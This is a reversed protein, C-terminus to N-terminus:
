YVNVFEVNKLFSKANDKTVLVGNVTVNEFMVQTSDGSKDYVLYQGDALTIDCDAFYVTNNKNLVVADDSVEATVNVIFITAITKNAVLINEATIKQNEIALSNSLGYNEGTATNDDLTYAPGAVIEPETVEPETVEPETPAETEGEYKANADYQNDYSDFEYALQAAQVTISIGEIALGQYDNGAEEDMTGEIVLAASEGPLLEGEFAALDVEEEDITITFDIVELLKADGDIGNVAVKYKLALNGNNVIYATELAYTCGPEWLVEDNGEAKVWELSGGEINEGADDLLAVDLTGAQITNVNTAATDTFWAFTSGMLMVVCLCIAMISSVLAYKTSKNRM